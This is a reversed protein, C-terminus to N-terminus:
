RSHCWSDERNINPHTIAIESETLSPSAFIVDHICKFVYQLFFHMIGSLIFIVTM